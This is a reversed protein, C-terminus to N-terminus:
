NPVHISITAIKGIILNEAPESIRSFWFVSSTLPIDALPTFTIM